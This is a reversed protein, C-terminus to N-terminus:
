PKLVAFSEDFGIGPSEFFFLFRSVRTSDLTRSILEAFSEDFGAHSLDFVRFM